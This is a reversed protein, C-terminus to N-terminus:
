FGSKKFYVFGFTLIFVGVHLDESLSIGLTADFITNMASTIAANWNSDPRNQKLICVFALTTLKM